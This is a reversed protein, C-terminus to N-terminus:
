TITFATPIIKTSRIRIAVCGGNAEDQKSGPNYSTNGEVTVVEGPGPTWRKGAATVKEGVRGLAIGIHDVGGGDFDMLLATGKRIGATSVVTLGYAGRNAVAQIEPTYLANFKGERLGAKGAKSGEALAATFVAFACWPWGMRQYWAALRLQKALQALPPVVNSGAPYEKWGADYWRVMRDAAKEGITLRERATKRRNNARTRMLTSPKRTGALYDDLVDGYVPTLDNTPYGLWFKARKTAAGTVPGYIGDINGANLHGAKALRAQANRVDDGRMYPSALRLTRRM